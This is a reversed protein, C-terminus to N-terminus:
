YLSEAFSSVIDGDRSATGAVSAISACGTVLVAFTRHMLGLESARSAQASTASTRAARPPKRPPRLKDVYYARPNDAITSADPAEDERVVARNRKDAKFV